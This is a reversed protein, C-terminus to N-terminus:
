RLREAENEGALVKNLLKKLLYRTEFEFIDIGKNNDLYHPTRNLFYM